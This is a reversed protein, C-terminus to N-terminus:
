PHAAMDSLTARWSQYRTPATEDGHPSPVDPGSYEYVLSANLVHPILAIQAMLQVASREVSDEAIVVMRGDGPNLAVDLEPFVALDRALAATHEPTTRVVIGLISM